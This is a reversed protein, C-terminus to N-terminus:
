SIQNLGAAGVHFSQLIFAGNNCEKSNFQLNDCHKHPRNHPVYVQTYPDCTLSSFPGHGGALVSHNEMAIPIWLQKETLTNEIDRM